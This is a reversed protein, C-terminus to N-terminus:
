DAPKRASLVLNYFISPPLRPELLATDVRQLAVFVDAAFPHGVAVGCTSCRHDPSTPQPLPERCSPCVRTDAYTLM